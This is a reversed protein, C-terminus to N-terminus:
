TIVTFPDLFNTCVICYMLFCKARETKKISNLIKRSRSRAKKPLAQNFALIEFLNKDSRPFSTDIRNNITLCTEVRYAEGKDLWLQILHCECMSGYQISKSRIGIESM